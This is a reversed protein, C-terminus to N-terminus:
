DNHPKKQFINKGFSMVSGLIGSSFSEMDKATKQIMYLVRKAEYLLLIAAIGVGISVIAIIIVAGAIVYELFAQANM